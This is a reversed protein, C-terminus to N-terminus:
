NVRYIHSLKRFMFINRTALIERNQVITVGFNNFLPCFDDFHAMYHLIKVLCLENRSDRMYKWKARHMLSLKGFSSSMGQPWNKEIPDITVGFNNLFPLFNYIPPNKITM